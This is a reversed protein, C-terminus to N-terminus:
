EGIKKSNLYVKIFEKTKKRLDHSDKDDLNIIKGDKIFSEPTKFRFSLNKNYFTKKICKSIENITTKPSM